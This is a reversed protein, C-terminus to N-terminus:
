DSHGETNALWYQPALPLTTIGSRELSYEYVEKNITTQQMIFNTIVHRALRALGQLTLWTSNDVRCTDSYPSSRTLQSPLTKLNHIYRSRAKYANSLAKSLDADGIPNLVGVAEERFYRPHLNSISFDRFRRGISTHENSIIARRVRESVKRDVGILAEDVAKRKREDYDGWSVEYGDFESALSEVSAVLLIYSLEFDDAVRQVGTVYTRLCKMVALFVARKLGLIQQVFTVLYECDEESCPIDKKFVRDVIEMPSSFTSIGRQTGLLRDAVAYSPSATCNLAFSLVVSFDNIYPEIGHSVLVGPSDEVGVSEVLEEMEYVIANCTGATSTSLLSGADTKIRKDRALKLNTYIVGRLNNRYGVSKQFLKGSSIQLM